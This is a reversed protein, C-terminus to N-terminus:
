IQNYIDSSEDIKSKLIQIFERAFRKLFPVGDRGFYMLGSVNTICKHGGSNAQIMDWGTVKLKKLAKRERESLEKYPKDMITKVAKQWREVTYDAPAGKPPQDLGIIGFDTDSYLAIMDTYNFGVSDPSFSKHKEAFYKITDVTIIYNKLETEFSKLMEQAIEGLNVGKLSRDKKFPNCSSQMLGLPWVIVLFNADPYNKFPVYRDYSGPKFLSGGGYQAIIGHDELYKVKDSEKQSQVYKELNATMIEPTAYGEEKAIRVINLYINVL